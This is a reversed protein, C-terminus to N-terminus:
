EPTCTYPDSALVEDDGHIPYMPRNGHDFDLPDSSGYAIHHLANDMIDSQLAFDDMPLDPFLAPLRSPCAIPSESLFGDM